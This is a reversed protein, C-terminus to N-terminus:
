SAATPARSPPCKYAGWGKSRSPTETLAISVVVNSM